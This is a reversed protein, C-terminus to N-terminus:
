LGAPHSSLWAAHRGRLRDRERATALLVDAGGDYPHHIRQMGTDTILVGGARDDAVERLLDDICGSRWRRRTTFLHSYSRFEPGPDDHVLVTQWYDAGPQPPPAAPEATWVPRIVYVDMGAFLESLVTNYRELIVGYEGEDDPYRKSGPLSHFRVWLDKFRDKLMHGVPPCGPWRRLWLETLEQQRRQGDM